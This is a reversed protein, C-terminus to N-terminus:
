ASENCHVSSIASDQVKNSSTISSVEVLQSDSTWSLIQHGYMSGCHKFCRHSTREQILKEPLNAHYLTTVSHGSKCFGPM